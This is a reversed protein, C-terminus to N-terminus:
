EGHEIQAWYEDYDFQPSNERDHCHTCQNKAQGFYATRIKSDQMHGQSPGHCSECGVVALTESRAVSVFGGPLGFGTVHCQQCYSDVQAGTTKLSGWAHAHSSDDWLSCDDEHCQRCNQSGAIRFGPPLNQPLSKTFPTDAASFDRKALVHYFQELNQKQKANDALSENMEVIEGRWKQSSGIAPAHFIGLFKGKNTASAWLTPGALRPAISQGTPGGVILDVEPLQSALDALEEEPLYALVM